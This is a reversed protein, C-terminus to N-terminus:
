KHINETFDHKTQHAPRFTFRIVQLNDCQDAFTGQMVDFVEKVPLDNGSRTEFLHSLDLERTDRVIVEITVLENCPGRHVASVSTDRNFTQAMFGGKEANRNYQKHMNLHVPGYDKRIEDETEWIKPESFGNNAIILSLILISLIRIM